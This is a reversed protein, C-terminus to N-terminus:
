ILYNKMQKSFTTNLEKDIILCEVDPLKNVFDIGEKGGLILVTKALIDAELADRSIVTVALIDNDAPLGTRPDIIHHWSFDGKIGKRKTVGSTAISLSEGLVRIKMLDEDHKLPNQVGVEWVGSSNNKGHLIIDGGASIWFNNYKGRLKKALSDLLYGKGLGGLDVKLCKPLSILNKNKDIISVSFVPRDFFNNVVEDINLNVKSNKNKGLIDFSEKYGVEELPGLITPDFIGGTLKHFRQAEKLIDILVESAVFNSGSSNNLRVLESDERFRSFSEDFLIALNCIDQADKKAGADGSVILVSFDTGLTKISAFVEM